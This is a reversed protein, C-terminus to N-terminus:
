GGLQYCAAGNRRDARRAPPPEWEVVLDATLM